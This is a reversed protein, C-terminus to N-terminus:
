SKIFLFRRPKAGHGVLPIIGRSGCKRINGFATFFCNGATAKHLCGLKGGNTKQRSLRHAYLIGMYTIDGPPLGPANRGQDPAQPRLAGM